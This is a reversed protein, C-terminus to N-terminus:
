SLRATVAIDPGPPSSRGGRGSSIGQRPTEDQEVDVACQERGAGDRRPRQALGQELHEARVAVHVAVLIRPLGIRLDDALQHPARAKGIGLDVPAQRFAECAVRRPKRLRQPGLVHPGLGSDRREDLCQGRGRVHRQAQQRAIKLRAGPGLESGEIQVLVEAEAGVTGVSFVTILKWGHGHFSGQRPGPLAKGSLRDHDDAVRDVVHAPTRATATAVPFVAILTRAASPGSASTSSKASVCRESWAM